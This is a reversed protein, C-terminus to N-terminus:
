ERSWQRLRHVFGVSDDLLPDLSGAVVLLSPLQKLYNGFAM